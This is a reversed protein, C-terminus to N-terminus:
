HNCKELTTTGGDQTPFRVTQLDRIEPCIMQMGLSQAADEAYSLQMPYIKWTYGSTYLTEYFYLIHQARKM